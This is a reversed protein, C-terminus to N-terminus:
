INQLTKKTNGEQFYQSPSQDFQKKFARNFASKSNFGVEYAVEIFTTSKDEEKRSNYLEVFAKIRYANVFDFFNVSFSSNILASLDNRNMEFQDALQDLNLGPELYPKQQEMFESLRIKSEDEKSKFDEELPKTETPTTVPDPLNLLNETMLMQYSLLYISFSVAIWFIHYFRYDMVEYVGLLKAVFSITWLLVLVMQLVFFKLLFKPPEVSSYNDFYITYNAQYTYYSRVLYYGCSVIGAAEIWKYMLVLHDFNMYPMKEIIILGLIINLVFAHFLAPILHYFLKRMGVPPLKLLSRTLFYAIPGFLFLLVDPLSVFAWYKKLLYPQYSARGFMIIVALFLLLRLLKVSRKDSYKKLFLTIFLIVGQIISLTLIYDVM